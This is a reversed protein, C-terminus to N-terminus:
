VKLGSLDVELRRTEKFLEPWTVTRGQQGAERGLLTALTANVAPDLTPNTCIGETISKHFTRVNAQMGDTYLNPSDGGNWADEVGRIFVKGAYNAELYGTQGYAICGARFGTHNPMHEGTHAMITGNPFQISLAYCDHSDSQANARRRSRHGTASQPVQGAVWLAVDM